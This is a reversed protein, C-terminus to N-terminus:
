RKQRSKARLLKQVMAYARFTTSAQMVPSMQATRRWGVPDIPIPEHPKGSRCLYTAPGRYRRYGFLVAGVSLRISHLQLLPHVLNQKGRFCADPSCCRHPVPIHHPRFGGAYRTAPLVTTIRLASGGGQVLFRSTGKCGTASRKRKGREPPAIFYVIM